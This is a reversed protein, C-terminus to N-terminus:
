RARERARREIKAVMRNWARIATDDTKWAGCDLFHSRQRTCTVTAQLSSVLHLRPEKGCVPCPALKPATM